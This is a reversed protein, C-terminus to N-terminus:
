LWPKGKMDPGVGGSSLGMKRPPVQEEIYEAGSQAMKALLEAGVARAHEALERLTRAERLMGHRELTEALRQEWEQHDQEEVDAHMECLEADGEALCARNIDSMSRTEVAIEWAEEAEKRRRAGEARWIAAAGSCRKEKADTPM